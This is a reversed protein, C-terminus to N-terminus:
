VADSGMEVTGAKIVDGVGDDRGWKMEFLLM